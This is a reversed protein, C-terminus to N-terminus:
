GLDRTCEPSDWRKRVGSTAQKWEKQQGEPKLGRGGVWYRIMNGEEGIPGRKWV